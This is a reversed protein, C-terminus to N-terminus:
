LYQLSIVWMSLPTSHGEGIDINGVGSDIRRQLAM